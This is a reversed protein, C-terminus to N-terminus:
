QARLQLGHHRPTPTLPRPWPLCKSAIGRTPAQEELHVLRPVVEEEGQLVALVTVHEHQGLTVLAASQLVLGGDEKGSVWRSTSISRSRDEPRPPPPTVTGPAPRRGEAPAARVGASRWAEAPASRSASRSHRARSTARRPRDQPRTSSARSMESALAMRSSASSGSSLRKGEPRSACSSDSRRL